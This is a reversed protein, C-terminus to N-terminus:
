KRMKHITRYVYALVEAVAAFSERPVFDGVECHKYLSRALPPNPVIPVKNEGALERIKLALYDQGKAVVMPAHMSSRDYKIAISFHTPNTIIVDASKVAESMRGRSLKRARAMRAHKLEPSGEQEKMERKVEDKTMMLQKRTQQRQFFYDAVALVFWIGGIKTAISYFLGGVVGASNAPVLWSLTLLKSWNAVIEAYAVYGFMAGKFLSKLGEVLARKSFIRKFGEMPNVKTLKPQLIELSPKFGVQAFNVFLGALLATGLIVGLFPVSPMLMSMGMKTLAGQEVTTPAHSFSTRISMMMANGFQIMAAPFVMIVALLVVSGNLEQSKAVNGQKRAEELKKHTPEETKEGSDNGGAM